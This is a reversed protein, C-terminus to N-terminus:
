NEILERRTYLVYSSKKVQITDFDPNFMIWTCLESSAGTRVSDIEIDAAFIYNATIQERTLVENETKYPILTIFVFATLLLLTVGLPWLDKDIGFPLKM